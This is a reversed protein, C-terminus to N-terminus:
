GKRSKAIEEAKKNKYEEDAYREQLDEQQKKKRHMANEQIEQKTKKNTKVIIRTSNTANIFVDNKHKEYIMSFKNLLESFDFAKKMYNCEACCPKVNDIVYGKICDMRDIGNNHYETNNKGCMFCNRNKISEFENPTITFVLGKKDARDKYSSYSGSMHNAFCEDHLNGAIKQQFTLIHEARKIFVDDSLSGKMFNCMKCCSVCNELVYGKSQDLRDIGNFGKEQQIGCYYCEKEVISIYNEYTLSFEINKINASRVYVSFNLKRSNKKNENTEAMKDQNKERWRKATEANQKLYEETGLQEIKKQRANMWIKAVKEYNEEKWKAKVAKREPKRENKRAIENRHNKDRKKDNKKCMDRCRKCNKTIPQREGVFNEMPLNKLCCNCIKTASSNNEFTNIPVNEFTNELNNEPATEFTNELNNELRVISINEVARNQEKVFGRRNRDKERDKELCEECKSHQYDMNLQSRCGRICNKCVKKNMAVTEDEFQCLQHRGCYINEQSRKSPCDKKSCLVPKEKSARNKKGRDRCSECTKGGDTIYYAMKCGSCPQIKSLMEDTYENMYQHFVCFRSNTLGHNRCPESNRDKALCKIM